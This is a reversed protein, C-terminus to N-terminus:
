FAFIAAAVELLQDLVKDLEDRRSFWRYDEDGFFRALSGFQGATWELGKPDRELMSQMLRNQYERVIGIATQAFAQAGEQQEVPLRRAEADAQSLLSMLRAALDELQSALAKLGQKKLSEIREAKTPTAM